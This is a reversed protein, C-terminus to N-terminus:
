KAPPAVPKKTKSAPIVEELVETKPEKLYPAIKSVKISPPYADNVEEIRYSVEVEGYKESKEQIGTLVAGVKSPSTENNIQAGEATVKLIAYAGAGVRRQSTLHVVEGTKTDVVEAFAAMETLPDQGEPLNLMQAPRIEVSRIILDLDKIERGSQARFTDGNLENTFWGTDSSAIGVLQLRFPDPKVNAFEVGFPPDPVPLPPPAINVVFKKEDKLYFIKPSTFVQYIWKPGESQARPPEWTQTPVNPADTATKVYVTSEPAPLALLAPDTKKGNLFM